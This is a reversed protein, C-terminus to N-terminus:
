GTVLPNGMRQWEELGGKYDLANYGLVSLKKAAQTSAICKFGGCYVIINDDKSLLEKATTMNITDSPFPIAGEIHGRKYSDLPLVDLLIYKDESNRIEMFQDYTIERIGSKSVTNKVIESFM